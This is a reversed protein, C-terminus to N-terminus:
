SKYNPRPVKSRMANISSSYVEVDGGNPGLGVSAALSQKTGTGISGPAKNPVQGREMEKTNRLLSLYVLPDRSDAEFRQKTGSDTAINELYAVLDKTRSHRSTSDNTIRTENAKKMPSSSSSTTAFGQTGGMIVLETHSASSGPVSSEVMLAQPAAIGSSSTQNLGKSSAHKNIPALFSKKSTEPLEGPALNSTRVASAKFSNFIAAGVRKDKVHGDAVDERSLLSYSVDPRSPNKELPDLRIRPPTTGRKIPSQSSSHIAVKM